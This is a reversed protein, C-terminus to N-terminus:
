AETEVAFVDLAQFLMSLCRDDEQGEMAETPVECGEPVHLWIPTWEGGRLVFAPTLYSQMAGLEYEALLEVGVATGQVVWPVRM